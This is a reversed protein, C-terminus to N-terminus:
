YNGKVVSFYFGQGLPTTITVLIRKFATQGSVCNGIADSYCVNVAFGFRPYRAALSNGEANALTPFTVQLQHYDDIDDFNERSEGDPGFSAAATCVPGGIGNCRVLGGSRASQEDFSKAIVEDILAQGLTAARLQLVPEASRFAQPYLLTFVLVLAIALTVIGIILEILSFGHERRTSSVPMSTWM